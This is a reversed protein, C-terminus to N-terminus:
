SGVLWRPYGVGVVGWQGDIPLSEVGKNESPRERCGRRESWRVGGNERNGDHLTGHGNRLRRGREFDRRHDDARDEREDDDQRQDREDEVERDPHDSADEVDDHGAAPGVRLLRADRIVLEIM